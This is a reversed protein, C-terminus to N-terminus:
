GITPWPTEPRVKFKFPYPNRNVFWEPAQDAIVILWRGGKDATGENISTITMHLASEPLNREQLTRRMWLRVEREPPMITDGVRLSQAPVKKM